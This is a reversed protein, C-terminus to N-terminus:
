VVYEILSLMYWWAWVIAVCLVLGLTEYYWKKSTVLRFIFSKVTVFCLVLTDRIAKIANM